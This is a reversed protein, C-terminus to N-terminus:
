NVGIESSQRETPVCRLSFIRKMKDIEGSLPKLQAVVVKGGKALSGQSHYRCYLKKQSIIKFFTGNHGCLTVRRFSQRIEM